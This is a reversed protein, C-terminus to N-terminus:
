SRKGDAFVNLGKEIHKQRGPAYEYGSIEDTWAFGQHEESLLIRREWGPEKGLKVFVGFDWWLRKDKTGQYEHVYLERVVGSLGTEEGLERLAAEHVREGANVRGGPTDWLRGHSDEQDRQLILVGLRSIVIISTKISCPEGNIAVLQKSPSVTPPIIDYNMIDVPSVRPLLSAVARAPNTPFHLYEQIDYKPFASGYVAGLEHLEQKTWTIGLEDPKGMYPSYFRFFSSVNESSSQMTMFEYDILVPRALDRFKVWALQTQWTGKARMTALRFSLKVLMSGSDQLFEWLGNLESSTKDCLKASEYCFNEIRMSSLYVIHRQITSETSNGIRTSEKPVLSRDDNGVLIGFWSDRIERLEDLWLVTDRMVKIKYRLLDDGTKNQLRENMETAWMKSLEPDEILYTALTPSLSRAAEEKLCNDMNSLRDVLDKPRVLKLIRVLEWLPQVNGLVGKWNEGAWSELLVKLELESDLPTNTNTRTNAFRHHLSSLDDWNTM